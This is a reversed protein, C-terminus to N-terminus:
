QFCQIEEVASFFFFFFFSLSQYACLVLIVVFFLCCCCCCRFCFMFALYMHKKGRFCVNRSIMIVVSSFSPVDSSFREQPLSSLLCDRFM